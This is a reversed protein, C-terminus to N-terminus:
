LGFLFSGIILDIVYATAGILFSKTWSFAALVHVVVSCLVATWIQIVIWGYRGIIDVWATQDFIRNYAADATAEGKFGAVLEFPYNVSSVTATAIANVLALVVMTILTAGIVILMVRWVLKGGFSKSMFYILGSLIVWTITFQMVGAFVVNLLYSTGYLDIGSLLPGHFFLGDILITQNSTEAWTFELRLGSINDWDPTSSTQSWNETALLITENTWANYNSDAFDDDLSKFFNDSSNGSFLQVTINAPKATPSTWKARFSLKDYGNPNSCNITGIGDLKMWLQDTNATSFALSTNGYYQFSLYKSGNVVDSSESMQANSSWLTSNQTWEDQNLGNPVTQEVFVKSASVYAYGLNAVLFIAIILIPAIITPNEAMKKFAKQPAYIVELINPIRLKNFEASLNYL